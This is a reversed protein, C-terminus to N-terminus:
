SQSSPVINISKTSYCVKPIVPTATYYIVNINLGDEADTFDLQLNKYDKLNLRLFPGDVTPNGNIRTFAGYAITVRM